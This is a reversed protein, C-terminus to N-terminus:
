KFFTVTHNVALDSHCYFYFHACVQMNLGEKKSEHIHYNLFHVISEHQQQEFYINKVEELECFLDTKELRVVSDPTAM